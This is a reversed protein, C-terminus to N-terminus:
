GHAGWTLTDPDWRRWWWGSICPGVLHAWSVLTRDWNVRPGWSWRGDWMSREICHEMWSRLNAVFILM